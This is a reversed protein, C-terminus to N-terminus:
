LPCASMCENKYIFIIMRTCLYQLFNKKEPITMVENQSVDYLKWKIESLDDLKLSYHLIGM